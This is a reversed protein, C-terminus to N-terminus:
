KGRLGEADFIELMEDLTPRRSLIPTEVITGISIFGLLHDTEAAGFARRVEPDACRSGSLIIAGYGLGYAALLMSQMAAGACAIQEAETIEPKTMKPKALIALLVPPRLAKDRERALEAETADPRSRRKAAIFLDALRERGDDTCQVIRWPRMAGHDPATLGASLIQGLETESPAPMGLRKVAASRRTLLWSIDHKQDSAPM